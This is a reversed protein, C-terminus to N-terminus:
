CSSKREPKAKSQTEGDFASSCTPNSHQPSPTRAQDSADLGRARKPSDRARALTRAEHELDDVISEVESPRTTAALRWETRWRDSPRPSYAVLRLVGTPHMQWEVWTIGAVPLSRSGVANEAPEYQGRGLYRMKREVHTEVIALGLPQSNITAVTPLRPTRTRFDRTRYHVPVDEWLDIIPRIARHGAQVSVSHGRGELELFLTNAFRLGRGFTEATATLDISRHLRPVRCTGGSVAPGFSDIRGSLAILPHVGDAVSPMSAENRRNYQWIPMATGKGRGWDTPHGPKPLPLPPQVLEIGARRKAWWGRTPKPVDLAACIRGVYVGSVGLKEAARQAPASWVLDYLEERTIM